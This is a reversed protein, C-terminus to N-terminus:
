DANFNPLGEHDSELLSYQKLLMCEGGNEFDISYQYFYGDSTVVMVEPSTSVVLM